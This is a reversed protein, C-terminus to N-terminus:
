TEKSERENSVVGGSGSGRHEEDFRRAAQQAAALGEGLGVPRGLDDLARELAALCGMTDLLDYYGMHAVRILRGKMQEQGGAVKVGYASEMRGVLAEGDVEPPLLVASLTPTPNTAFLQLGLPPLAARFAVAQRLANLAFREAGVEDQVFRLATLLSVVLDVAPTFESHGEVQRAHRRLDFYYRPPGKFHKLRDEARPGLGVWALGPGIMLAKQSAGVVVDVDWRGVELPAAAMWSIVDAVLLCDASQRVLGALEPLDHAAGTSTESAQVFLAKADPCQSLVTRVQDATASDGWPVDVIRPVAGIAELIEVWRRGFKGAVVVVAEEGPAVTNVVAAEMGGTGSAALLVLPGRIGMLEALREHAEKFVAEFSPTRHHLDAVLAALRAQPLGLTPGPTFLRPKAFGTPLGEPAPPFRVNM